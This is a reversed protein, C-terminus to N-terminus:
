GEQPKVRSAKLFIPQNNVATAEEPTLSLKEELNPRPVNLRGAVLAQQGESVEVADGVNLVLIQEADNEGIFFARESVITRMEADKLRARAGNLVKKDPNVFIARVDTIPPADRRSAATTGGVTDGGNADGADNAAQEGNGQKEANGGSGGSKDGEGGGGCAPILAMSALLLALAALDRLRTTGRYKPNKQPTQM